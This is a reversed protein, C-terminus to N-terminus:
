CVERTRRGYDAFAALREGAVARAGPPGMAVVPRRRWAGRGLQRRRRGAERGGGGRGGARRRGGGGAAAAARGGGGRGRRGRWGGRLLRGRRRGRADAPQAAAPVGVGVRGHARGHRPIRGPHLGVAFHLAGGAAARLPRRRRVARQGPQDDPQLPGPQNTPAAASLPPPRGAM